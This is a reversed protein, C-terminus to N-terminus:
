HSYLDLGGNNIEGHLGTNEGESNVFYIRSIQIDWMAHSMPSTGMIHRSKRDM